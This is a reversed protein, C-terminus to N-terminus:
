KKGHVKAVQEITASQPTIHEVTLRESHIKDLIAVLREKREPHGNTDHQLYIPHYVLGTRTM